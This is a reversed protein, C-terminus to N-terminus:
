PARIRCTKPVGRYRVAPPASASAWNGPSSRGRPAPRVAHQGDLEIL